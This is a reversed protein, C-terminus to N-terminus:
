KQSPPLQQAKQRIVPDLKARKDATCRCEWLIHEQDQVAIIGQELCLPCYDDTVMGAVYMRRRTQCSGSVVCAWAREIHDETAGPPLCAMVQKRIISLEKTMGKVSCTKQLLMKTLTVDELPMWWILGQKREWQLHAYFSRGPPM